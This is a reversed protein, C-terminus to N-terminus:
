RSARHRAKKAPAKKAAARKVPAKRAKASAKRAARHHAVPAAHAAVKAHVRGHPKPAPEPREPTLDDEAKLEPKPASAAPAQGLSGSWTQAVAESVEQMFAMRAPIGHTTKAIFVAVAYSHGDPATIVGVDNYGVTYNRLDQGTGTKHSIRWGEPLGGKLRKPGNRTESMIELLRDTSAKSLLEGRKLRRLGEAMGIPTAADPPDALYAAMAQDRVAGPLAARVERFLISGAYEPKWVMGAMKSQLVREEYGVRVDRLGKRRILATIPGPGGMVRILMDNAANDSDSIARQLLEDLSVSYGNPGVKRAIPQFFVSLDQRTMNFRQDLKLRGHDVADLVAIAVWLKSVSQQPFREDGAESVIWSKDVDAVAIGVKGGFRKAIDELRVRLAEPGPALPKPTPMAAVAQAQAHRAAAHPTEPSLLNSLTPAAGMLLWLAGVAAFAKWDSSRSAVPSPFRESM